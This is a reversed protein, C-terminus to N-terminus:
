QNGAMENAFYLLLGGARRDPGAIAERDLYADLSRQKGTGECVNIFEGEFSSNTLVAKWAKDVVPQYTESDLWNQDIGRKIATAIMATSTIEAFSGPYDIVQHWLGDVDQYPLLKDIHNQFNVLLQNFEPHSEPFDTLSLALGLAPFGNGRCWAVDALPSHRYLGSEQLLLKQIYDVHRVALNFYREDGTLKGVKSLLPTAMFVADSMQNHLPMAERMNGLEDFGLDAARQALELYDTNGTREALEAFVLHGAIISGSTIEIPPGSLYTEAIKKVDELEGLRMRGILAMGPIYAPTSFDSGYFEALQIAFEDPSRKLRKEIEMNAESSNLHAQQLLFDLSATANPFHKVPILGIGAVPENQLSQLLQSKDDGVIVVLDPAHIGIWRWLSFSVPDDKYAKGEPPFKLIESEPNAEPIVILKVPRDELKIRSYANFLNLVADSSEPDGNLGAIYIVTPASENNGSIGKATILARDTSLGVNWKQIQANTVDLPLLILLLQVIYNFRGYLPNAGMNNLHVM